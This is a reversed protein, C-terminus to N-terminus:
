EGDEREENKAYVYLKGTVDATWLSKKIKYNILDNKYAGALINMGIEKKIDEILAALAERHSKFKPNHKRYKKVDNKSIHYGIGLKKPEHVDALVFEEQPDLRKALRLLWQALQKKM